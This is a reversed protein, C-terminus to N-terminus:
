LKKLKDIYDNVLKIKEQLETIEEQADSIARNLNYKIKLKASEESISNKLFKFSDEIENDINNLDKFTMVKNTKTMGIINMKDIIVNFSDIYYGTEDFGFCPRYIFEPLLSIVGTKIDDNQYCLEKNYGDSDYSLNVNCFPQKKSSVLYYYTKGLFNNTFYDILKKVCYNARETNIKEIELNIHKSLNLNIM